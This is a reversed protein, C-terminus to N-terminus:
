GQVKQYATGKEWYHFRFDGNAIGQLSEAHGVFLYGEQNLVKRFRNVLRKQGEEDFYIMVNRCFIIDMNSLGNEHFLNHYDFVVVKKVSDKLTFAGDSERFYKSFYGEPVENLKEKPYVGAQALELCRLSIDSAYIRVNWLAADPIAEMVEMTISYPEEGTACGASWIALTYDKGRRKKEVIEPLVKERLMRFQPANRFFFTENITVADLFAYLESRNEPSTIMKYYSYFSSVGLIRLRKLARADLFDKKGDNLYIGCETHVLNRFLKFEDDTITKKPLDLACMTLKDM